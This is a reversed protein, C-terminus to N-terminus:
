TQGVDSVPARNRLLALQEEVFQMSPTYFDFAEYLPMTLAKVVEPLNTELQKVSALIKTEVTEQRSRYNDYVRARGTVSKLRRDKLKGWSSYFLVSCDNGAIAKAFRSAHLLCEGTEWIPKAVDIVTGPPIKPALTDEAYGRTLYMLGTPSARWFDSHAGDNFLGEKLWCEITGNQAYPALAEKNFVHWPPWGTEHGDIRVLIELLDRLHIPAFKGVVAYAVTWLGYWYRNPHPDKLEDSVKGFFVTQSEKLWDGLRRAAEDEPTPQSAPAPQLPQPSIGLVVDRIRDILDERHRRVCRGLLDDWEAGTRIPESKPGPKRIYYTNERVHKGSPSSSKSRIPMRHDGPVVVVPFREGTQSHVVQRVNCHIRPEAYRDVIGGVIDQSYGDLTEPRSSAAAWTGGTECFGILVYGGGEHNALALIAQALDARADDDRLDLWNKLEIHLEERPNEVLGELFRPDLDPM